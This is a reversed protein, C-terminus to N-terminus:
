GMLFCPKYMWFTTTKSKQVMLLIVSLDWFSGKKPLWWHEETTQYPRHLNKVELIQALYDLRSLGAGVEWCFPDSISSTDISKEPLRELMLMRATITSCRNAPHFGFCRLQHDYGWDRLDGDSLGQPTTLRWTNPPSSQPCPLWFILPQFRCIVWRSLFMIKRVELIINWTLRWPPIKKFSWIVYSIWLRLTRSFNVEYFCAGNSGGCAFQLVAALASHWHRRDIALPVNQPFSPM